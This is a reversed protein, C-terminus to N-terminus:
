QKNGRYDWRFKLPLRNDKSQGHNYLAEVAVIFDDQKNLRNLDTKNKSLRLKRFFQDKSFDHQGLCFLIATTFNGKGQSTPSLGPVEEFARQLVAANEKAAELDAIEFTGAKVENIATGTSAAASLRGTLLCVCIGYNFQYKARFAILTKYAKLGQKAFSDIFDGLTWNKNFSNLIKVDKIGLGPKIIYLIPLGLKQLAFYRHQGDIIEMRENVTLYTELNKNDISRALRNVHDGRVKRNNPLLKFLNYSLTSLIKM